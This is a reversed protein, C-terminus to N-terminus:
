ATIASIASLHPILQPLQERRNTTGTSDQTLQNLKIMSYPDLRTSVMTTTVMTITLPIKNATAATDVVTDMVTAMTSISTVIAKTPLLRHLLHLLLLLKLLLYLSRMVQPRSYKQAM